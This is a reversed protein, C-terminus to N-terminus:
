LERFLRFGVDSSRSLPFDTIRYSIQCFPAVDAWSGGRLIGEVNTYEWVNGSMDCIGLENSKKLGVSHTRFASNGNYWAVSDVNNSGSYLFGNAYIGGKAAFDWENEDPLRIVHGTFNSIWQCFAKAENININIVPNDGRGFPASPKTIGVQDCYYDYQDFTVETRSVYYNKGGPGNEVLIWQIGLNSLSIFYYSSVSYDGFNIRSQTRIRFFYRTNHVFVSYVTAQNVAPEVRQLVTFNHADSSVEIVIESAYGNTNTWTLSATTSDHIQATLEAVQMFNLNAQAASFSTFENRASKARVRFTYTKGIVYEGFVLATVSNGAIEKVLVSEGEDVSLYIEIKEDITSNDRWSLVAVTDAPFEITVNGPAEHAIKSSTISYPSVNQDFRARVRFFYERESSFPFDISASTVNGKILQRTEFILSDSSIEVDFSYKIGQEFHYSWELVVRNDSLFAVTLDSPAVISNSSDYQSTFEYEKCSGLIFTFALLLIIVSLYKIKSLAKIM